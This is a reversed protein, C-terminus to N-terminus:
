VLKWKNQIKKKIREEPRGSLMQGRVDIDHGIKLTIRYTNDKKSTIITKEENTRITLTKQTEDIITGSRMKINPDRSSVITAHLGILEHRLINREDIPLDKM